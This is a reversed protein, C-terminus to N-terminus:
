SGWVYYVFFVFLWVVDVLHWYLIAFELGLHHESTFHDFFSRILGIFLFLVGVLVHLGHLGTTMYIVTGFASDSISFDCLFYESAQLAVFLAGLLITGFLSLIVLDKHGSVLAHHGLTLIFGSALLVCTGILPIAWPNIPNLGVPPWISGLEIAPSVSFTFFAWFMSVFLMIESLLFLLFGILLGKQVATTHFGSNAERIVDRWWQFAIILILLAQPILVLPSCLNSIWTGLTM